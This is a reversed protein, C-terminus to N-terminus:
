APSEGDHRFVSACEQGAETSGASGLAGSDEKGDNREVSSYNGNLHKATFRIPRRSVTTREVVLTYGSGVIAQVRMGFPALKANANALHWKIHRCSRRGVAQQLTAKDVVFCGAQRTTQWQAYRTLVEMVLRYETPTLAVISTDIVLLHRRANYHIHAGLGEIWLPMLGSQAGEILGSAHNPAFPLAEQHSLAEQHTQSSIAIRAEWADLRACRESWEELTQELGELLTRLRVYEDQLRQLLRSEAQQTSRAQEPADAERSRPALLPLRTLDVPLGSAHLDELAIEYRVPGQKGGMRRGVATAPLVGQRILSRVSRDSTGLLIAAKAPTLQISM